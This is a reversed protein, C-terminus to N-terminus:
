TARADVQCDTDQQRASAFTDGLGALAVQVALLRGIDGSVRLRGDIFAGHASEIGLAIRRGTEEDTVFRIAADAVPGNRVGVAGPTLLVHYTHGKGDEASPTITQELVLDLQSAISALREDARAANDRAEIWQDSFPEPM